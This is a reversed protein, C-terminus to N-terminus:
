FILDKKKLFITFPACFTESNSHWYSTVVHFLEFFGWWLITRIQYTLNYWMKALWFWDPSNLFSNEIHALSYFTLHHPFFGVIKKRLICFFCGLCECHVLLGKFQQKLWWIPGSYAKVLFINALSPKWLAIIDRLLLNFHILIVQLHWHWHIGM